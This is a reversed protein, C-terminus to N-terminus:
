RVREGPRSRKLKKSRFFRRPTVGRLAASYCSERSPSFLSFGIVFHRLVNVLKDRIITDYLIPLVSKASELLRAGRFLREHSLDEFDRAFCCFNRQALSIKDYFSSNFTRSVHLNRRPHSSKASRRTLLRCINSEFNSRPLRRTAFAM